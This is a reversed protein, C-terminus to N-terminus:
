TFRATVTNNAASMAAQLDDALLVHGLMAELVPAFGDRVGIM